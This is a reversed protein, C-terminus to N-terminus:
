NVHQTFVADGSPSEADADKEVTVQLDFATAPVSAGDLNAKRDGEAYKLAGVRQWKGKDGKIWVVFMKGSGLRDPPALHEAKIKLMTMASDEKVDAVIEVDADPAKAPGKISYKLPGGCGALLAAALASTAITKWTMGPM